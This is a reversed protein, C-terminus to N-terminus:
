PMHPLVTIALVGAYHCVSGALVFLHWIGHAYPLRRNLYFITGLTYACGGGLLWVLAATPLTRVLPGIAIVIIWGMIVYALVSLWRLRASFFLKLAVGVVALGWVVGFISWGWGGRLGVITFPTYTGAILVYIACHDFVQLRRKAAPFPIAHYLTSATYLVILTCTFISAAVIERAGAYVATLTILTAGGGVSLLVGLGHTISSVVEEAVPDHDNELTDSM